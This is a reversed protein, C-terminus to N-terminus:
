MKYFASLMMRGHSLDSTLSSQNVLLYGVRVDIKHNVQYQTGLGYVFGAANKKSSGFGDLNYNTNTSNTSNTKYFHYGIGARVYASFATNGFPIYRLVTVALDYTQGKQILKTTSVQSSPTPGYDTATNTTTLEGSNYLGVETGWHQTARYGAVLGYGTGVKNDTSTIRSYMSGSNNYNSIKNETQENPAALALGFYSHPKFATQPTSPAANAVSICAISSLVTMATTVKKFM